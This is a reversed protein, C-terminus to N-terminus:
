VVIDSLSLTSIGTLKISFEATSDTDTNGFLVGNAFKLQGAATFSSSAAIFKSFSNNGSVNSRADITSLDIKDTGRVFDAIADRTTSSAGSQSAYDFDFIDRGSGGTLRDAGAGGTIRDNGGGGILTDNGALGNITDNGNWGNLTDSYRSGTITDSGGLAANMVYDFPSYAYYADELSVRLGSVSVQTKGDLLVKVSSITGSLSESFGSGTAILTLNGYDLTAKTSSLSYDYDGTDRFSAELKAPTTYYTITAM